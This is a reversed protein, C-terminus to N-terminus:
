LFAESAFLIVAIAAAILVTIQIIWMGDETKYKKV